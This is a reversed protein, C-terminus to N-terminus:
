KLIGGDIDRTDDQVVETTDKPVRKEESEVYLMGQGPFAIMGM